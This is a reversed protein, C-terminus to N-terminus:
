NRKEKCEWLTFSNGTKIVELELPFQLKDADVFIENKEIESKSFGLKLFGFKGTHVFDLIDVEIRKM